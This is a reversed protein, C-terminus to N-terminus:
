VVDQDPADGSSEDYEPVSYGAAAEMAVSTERWLQEEIRQMLPAFTERDLASVAVGEFRQVLQELAEGDCLDSKNLVTLYPKDNYELESLIQRVAKYHEGIEPSSADLVHLLLSAPEIEEFTTKFADMLEVPLKRIFGVTDTIIIEREQPFRLRRSVPNLTAFLADKATVDSRTLSNLLTSKGANTYGVISVTPVGKDTRRSRRLRRREGLKKVERELQSIRTQARRRDVELKTEGPGRGGIGGTLRSMATHKVSLLPLLYRLQALEVQIKGERTEARQAFIDLIVQTRDLVKMDSLEALNKTQTPTINLDFILLEAGLQMGKIVIQKLKGQGMIYKPHVKRRQLVEHVVVIGASESLEKLEALSEEAESRSSDSVHILIARNKAKGGVEYLKRNRAFEDEMADLLDEFDENLDHVRVPELVEWPLDSDNAPLLHAIYVRGPLGGDPLVEIAAVLDLRLLALDTFDDDDLGGKHLHTHILRLGCLRDHGVRFRSLDPLFVGRADGVIVEHIEGVRDILLGIQRKIEFSIESVQRALEPEIIHDTRSRKKCLKELRRLASAKM